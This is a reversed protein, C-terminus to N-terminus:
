TGRTLLVRLEHQSLTDAVKAKAGSSLTRTGTMKDWGRKLKDFYIKNTAKDYKVSSKNEDNKCGCSVKQGTKLLNTPAECINGCDCKCLYIWIDNSNKRAKSLVTLRGYRGWGFHEGRFAIIYRVM